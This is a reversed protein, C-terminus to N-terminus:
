VGEVAKAANKGLEYAKEMYENKEKAEGKRTVGPVIIKGILKM